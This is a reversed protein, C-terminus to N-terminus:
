RGFINMQGNGSKAPLPWFGMYELTSIIYLKNYTMKCTVYLECIIDFILNLLM